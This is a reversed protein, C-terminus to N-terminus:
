SRCSGGNMGSGGPCGDGRRRARGTARTWDVRAARVSTRSPCFIGIKGSRISCRKMAFSPYVFLM